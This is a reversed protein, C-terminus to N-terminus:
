TAPSYLHLQSFATSTRGIAGVCSKRERNYYESFNSHDICSGSITESSNFNVDSWWNSLKFDKSSTGNGCTNRTVIVKESRHPNNKELLERLTPGCCSSPLLVSSRVCWYM